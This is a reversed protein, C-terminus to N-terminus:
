WCRRFGLRIRCRRPIRDTAQHFRERVGRSSITVSSMTLGLPTTAARETSKAMVTIGSSTMQARVARVTDNGFAGDLYNGTGDGIMTDDLQSGNIGEFGSIRDSGNGTATGDVVNVLVPSPSPYFGLFDTGPGGDFIDDGAQAGDLMSDNGEGGILVNDGTVASPQDNGTGGLLLDDGGGGREGRLDDFGELLDDGAEGDIFDNENGATLYDDGDGGCIRDRGTGGSILDRGGLGVIVDPGPRGLLVDDGSSGIITAPLGFCRPRAPDAISSPVQQGLAFQQSAFCPPM